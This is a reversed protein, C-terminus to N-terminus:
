GRNVGAAQFEATSPESKLGAEVHAASAAVLEPNAKKATELAAQITTNGTADDNVLKTAAAMLAAKPDKSATDDDGEGGQAKALVPNSALADLDALIEVRGAADAAMIRDTWSDLRDAKIAGREVQGKISAKVQQRESATLKESVSAVSAELATAKDTIAKLESAEISVVGETGTVAAAKVPAVVPASAVISFKTKEADSLKDASAQLFRQELGTLDDAAKVRVEDINMSTEKQSANIHIVTKTVGGVEESIESATVPQNGSFLPRNTFAAGVMVNQATVGSEADAWMGFARPYFDSSLMKYEKGLIANKGSTSFELNTAWLEAQTTDDVAARVDMGKIWAGANLHSQHAFDVPIGTSGDGAMGIGAEFNSKMEKLDSATLEVEGYKQTFFNGSRLLMMETPLQGTSADALIVSTTQLSMDDASASVNKLAGQLKTKIDAKEADPIDQTQSLRALANRVHPLDVKGTADKYPLKRVDGKVYAFSSNPLSDIIAANWQAALLNEKEIIPM